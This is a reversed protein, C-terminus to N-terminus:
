TSPRENFRLTNGFPDLLSVHTGIEDTELGPKLHSYVRDRLEAHLGAIGTTGVYVVTGPTGDGHHESLHLVLDGRSVQLYLPLGPEFRHEWDVTMGLYDVYFEKAKDTDFIRLVPIVRNFEVEHPDTARRCHTPIIVARPNAGRQGM